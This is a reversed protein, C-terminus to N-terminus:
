AKRRRNWIIFGSVLLAIPIIIVFLARWIGGGAVTNNTIQLSKSPISINEIEPMVSTVANMFVDANILSPFAALIEEEILSQSSFAILTAEGNELSEKAAAGLVYQGSVQETKSVAEANQSTTMFATDTITDREPATLTFGHSEILLVLQDDTFTSTIESGTTKIVPFIYYPSSQYYRELDAIYANTMTIGYEKLFAELNPLASGEYSALYMVSGGKNLYESLMVREMESIDATPGNMILMTCDDPVNSGLLLSLSETEISLQDLRKTVTNGLATEGHGETLYIKANNENTVYNIASTLRGEGDFETEVVEGTSYYTYEDVLVIEEFYVNKTKGTTTNEVVITNNYGGVAELGSPNSVPDVYEVTIKDSAEAYQNVLKDIRPDLGTTEAIVTLKVTDQLEALLGKTTDGITYVKSSSLDIEKVSDPLLGVLLALVVAIAIVVVSIGLSYNGKRYTNAYFLSDVKERNIVKKM